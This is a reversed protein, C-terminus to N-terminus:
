TKVREKDPTMRYEALCASCLAEHETVEDEVTPNALDVTGDESVEFRVFARAYVYVTGEGCETCKM